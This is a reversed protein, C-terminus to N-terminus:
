KATLSALISNNKIGMYFSQCCARPIHLWGKPEQFQPLITMTTHHGTNFVWLTTSPLHLPFLWEEFVSIPCQSTETKGTDLFRHFIELEEESPPPFSLARGSLLNCFEAYFYSMRTYLPILVFTRSFIGGSEADMCLPCQLASLDWGILSQLVLFLPM